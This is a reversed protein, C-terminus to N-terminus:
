LGLAGPAVVGAPDLSARIRQLATTIGPELRGAYDYYKGVQTHVAGANDFRSALERRLAVAAARAEPAVSPDRYDGVFYFSPELLFDKGSVTLLRWAGIGHESLEDVHEVLFQDLISIVTGARSFPVIAHLPLHVGHHDGRFIARTAGFPDARIALPVSSDIRRSRREAIRELQACGSRCHAAEADEVVFHLTWELQALERFGLQALLGHYFRDFAYLDTAIRRAAIERMADVLDDIRDFAFSAASAVQPTPVLSLTVDTKVGFAGSDGLFLGTLDPGFHRAFGNAGRASGSGTRVITGDALVVTVGLVCEAVSGYRASGFFVSNQSVTGGITAHRGSLPGWYPTRVDHERLALYLAEWTCGAEVVAFLDAAEVQVVRNLRTMDVLVTGPSSPTHARTYSMGAGRVSVALGDEAAVALVAAVEDASAPRVVAAAIEFPELSLDGSLRKLLAADTSINEDGGVARALRQRTTAFSPTAM